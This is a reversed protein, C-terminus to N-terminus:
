STAHHAGACEALRKLREFERKITLEEILDALMLMRHGVECHGFHCKLALPLLEDRTM